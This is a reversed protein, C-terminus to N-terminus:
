AHIERVRQYRYDFIASLTARVFLVHALRGLPGLPLRYDVRDLMWVGGAQPRFEHRHSWSAYPGREQVDVFGKGPEWEGIRTRWALPVGALRITYEIRTGEQMEIPGPTRMRFHMWPPTILGLNEAQSFFEFVPEIPRDIWQERELRYTKM